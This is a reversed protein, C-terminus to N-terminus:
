NLYVPRRESLQVNVEGQQTLAQMQAAMVQSKGIFAKTAFLPVRLQLCLSMAEDARLKISNRRPHGAIYLRVYQHAGKIEVFVCQKVQIELSELMLETFRHPTVPSASHSQGLTMGAELPNIAVPLTYHHTQDKLLLFPRGGDVNLGFPFLEILDDQHFTEEEQDQTQFIIQAQLGKVLPLDNM